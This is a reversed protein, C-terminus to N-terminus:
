ADQKPITEEAVGIREECEACLTVTVAGGERRVIFDASLVAGGATEAELRALLRAQAVRRADEVPRTQAEAEYERFTEKVLTLPLAAGNPLTVTHYSIIKDYCPWPNGGTFYCNIRKGGLIVARRVRERGTYRKRFTEEPIVATLEHWTRATIDAEARVARVGSAISEMEGSVLLEGKKVAEGPAVASVGQMVTMRSIIGDKDACIDAPGDKEMEPAPREERVLVEARSGHTNVTLWCLEPVALLMENAIFEPAFGLRCKGIGVGRKDLEALIVASSVRENGAVDIQWIFLDSVQVAAFCLLLGAILAYRRRVRRLWRPAGRERLREATFGGERRELAALTGAERVTLSAVFAHEGEKAVRRPRIGSRAMRNLAAEPRDSEVRVRVAGRLLETLKGM